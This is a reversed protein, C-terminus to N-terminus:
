SALGEQAARRKLNNPAEYMELLYGLLDFEHQEFRRGTLKDLRMSVPSRRSRGARVASIKYDLLNVSPDDLQPCKLAAHETIHLIVQGRANFEKGDEWWRIPELSSLLYGTWRWKPQEACLPCGREPGGCLITRKVDEIWHTGLKVIAPQVAFLINTHNPVVSWIPIKRKKRMPLGPPHFVPRPRESQPDM